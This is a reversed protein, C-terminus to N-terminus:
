LHSVKRRQARSLYMPSPANPARSRSVLAEGIGAEKAGKKGSCSLFIRQLGALLDPLIHKTMVYTFNHFFILINKCAKCFM